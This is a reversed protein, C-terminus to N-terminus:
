PALGLRQREVRVEATTIPRRFKMALLKALRQNGVGRKIFPKIYAVEAATLLPTPGQLTAIREELGNREAEMRLKDGELIRKERELQTARQEADIAQARWYAIATSAGGFHLDKTSLGCRELERRVLDMANLREGTASTSRSAVELLQRVRDTRPPPPEAMRSFGSWCATMASRWIAAAIHIVRVVM